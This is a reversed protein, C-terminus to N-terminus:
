FPLKIGSVDFTGLKTETDPIVIKEERILYNIYEIEAFVRNSVMGKTYKLPSLDVGNEKLGLVNSGSQFLRASRSSKIGVFAANDVRKMASSLVYGPALYDQDVDVGIAFYGKGVEYFKDIITKLDADAKLGYLAMGKEKAADIVGNGTAGSAHFIIDAGQAFQSMAIQKGKSPDGFSEAYGSLIEVNTKHIQNYATVGAKYGVELREVPPIKIGGVYGVIGTKTMSAALYGTAFSAEQEKFTYLAVNKPIVQGESPSIDIGIYKVNPFQPAVNFLADTMMFGVAIVVDANKSANSLNDVYDTQEKSIIYDVDANLEDKSQLVGAWTGDNFSKDGLGGTDTVMIVKLSFASVFVLLTLLFALAKKM